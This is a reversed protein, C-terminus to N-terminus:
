EPSPREHNGKWFSRIARPLSTSQALAKAGHPGIDDFQLALRHLSSVVPSAALAKAGAAGIPNHRLDLLELHRWQSNAVAKAGAAAIDNRQLHLAELGQLRSSAALAKVGANGLQNYRLDLQVLQELGTAEALMKAGTARLGFYAFSLTRVRKLDLGLIANMVATLTQKDPASGIPEGDEDLEDEPVEKEEGLGTIALTTLFRSHPSALFAQTAEASGELWRLELGVVFGHLWQLSAGPPPPARWTAQHKKIFSQIDATLTAREKPTLRATAHQHELSILEGRVDGQGLLWDGYVLWSSWERPGDRLHEELTAISV